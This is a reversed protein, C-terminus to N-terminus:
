KKEHVFERYIKICEKLVKDNICCLAKKYQKVAEM